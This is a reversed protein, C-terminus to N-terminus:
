GHARRVGNKIRSITSIAVGFCDALDQLKGDLRKIALVDKESLKVAGNKVGFNHARTEPHIRAGHRDGVAQRNKSVMDQSNELYTGLFLHAPNICRKNDCSHCVCMGKPIDGKFAKYSARHANITKQGNWFVGYGRNGENEYIWCGKSSITHKAKLRKRMEDTALITRM